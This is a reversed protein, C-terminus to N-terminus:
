LTGQASALSADIVAYWAEKWAIVAAEFAEPDERDLAAKVQAVLPGQVEPSLRPPAEGAELPFFSVARILDGMSQKAETWDALLKEKPTPKWPRPYTTSTTM